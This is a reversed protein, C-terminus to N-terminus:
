PAILHLTPFYSKYRKRDRTLLPMARVAAHAGIFFDPLPTTRRGGKKRYKFFVKGALFAAEWPLPDKRFFLPDLVEELDEISAFRMSIEAYIIPNIVLTNRDAEFSLRESSWNFWVPDDTLVDLIVNSDVLVEL